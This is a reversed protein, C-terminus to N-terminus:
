PMRTRGTRTVSVRRWGPQRCRRCGSIGVRMRPNAGNAPLPSERQPEEGTPATAIIPSEAITVPEVTLGPTIDTEGNGVTRGRGGIGIATEHAHGTGIEAAVGTDQCIRGVATGVEGGIEVDRKRVDNKAEVEAVDEGRAGAEAGGIGAGAEAERIGAGM